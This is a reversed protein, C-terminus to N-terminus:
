PNKQDSMALYKVAYRRGIVRLAGGTFHAIDMLPQDAAQVAGTLADNDSNLWVVVNNVSSWSTEQAIFKASTADFWDENRLRYILDTLSNYWNYENGHDSEGQSWAVLNVKDRNPLQELATEIRNKVALYSSGGEGWFSIAKGADGAPIIAIKRSPDEAIIGKAIQFTPHNGCAGGQFPFWTGRWVQTCLDAMQWGHNKTWVVIREDSYDYELDVLTNHGLANSQGMMVIVDTIDDVDAKSDINKEIECSEVGNWGWGDNDTDVCALTSEAPIITALFQDQLDMRCSKTGTWGWGDNDTDICQTTNVSSTTTVVTPLGVRCSKTGTWGWGDGDSDICSQAQAAASLFALLLISYKM